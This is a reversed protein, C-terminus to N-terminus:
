RHYAVQLNPWKRKLMEILKAEVRPYDDAGHNVNTSEIIVPEGRASKEAIIVISDDRRLGLFFFKGKARPVNQYPTFNERAGFKLLCGKLTAIEGTGLELSVRADPLPPSLIVSAMACGQIAVATWLAAFLALINKV